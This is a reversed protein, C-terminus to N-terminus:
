KSEINIFTVGSGQPPIQLYGPARLNYIAKFNAGPITLNGRDTFFTLASTQGQNSLTAYVSNVQRVPSELLGAMEEKSYPNGSIGSITCGADNITVPLIRSYNVSGKLGQGENVLWTNLIDAMEKNSLYLRSGNSATVDKKSSNCSGGNYTLTYWTKYFWSVGSISEWAKATWNGSGGAKDITDWGIGNVWGGHVAAYQASFPTGNSNTMIVGKTSEVASKWAGTKKGAIVQCSQTTCITGTGNQTYNIAYTRAAIAQAKLADMDWSEPMEGLRMLYDNEFDITGFTTTKINTMINQTQGGIVVTGTRLPKGPYYASLIQKYTQNYPAEARAVAGWQSMGNRHTYAGFAFVAFSGPLATSQFGAKSAYNNASGPVDGAGIIGGSAKAALIAEQLKSIEGKLTNIESGIKGSLYRRNAVQAALVKKQAILDSKSKDLGKLEKELEMKDEEVKQKEAKLEAFNQSLNKIKEAYGFGALKKLVFGRLLDEASRNAFVYEIFGFRSSKYMKSSLDDLLDQESNLVEEKEKMDAEKIRIENEALKIYEEIKKVEGDMLEIKEDLSLSSKAIADIERKIKELTSEKEKVEQNKKDVEKELDNTSQAYTPLHFFLLSLGLFIAVILGYKIISFIKM